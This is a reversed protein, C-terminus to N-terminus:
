CNTFVGCPDIIYHVYRLEPFYHTILIIHIMWIQFLIIIISNYFHAVLYTTLLYNTCTVYFYRELYHTPSNVQLTQM